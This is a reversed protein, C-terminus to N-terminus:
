EVSITVQPDDVALLLQDDVRGALVHRRGINLLVQLRGAGQDPLRDHDAVAPGVVDRQDHQVRVRAGRERCPVPQGVPRDRRDCSLGGREVLYRGADLTGVRMQAADLLDLAERHQVTVPRGAAVLQGRRHLQPALRDGFLVRGLDLVEVPLARERGRLDDTGSVAAGHVAVHGAFRRDTEASRLVAPFGIGPRLRLRTGSISQRAVHRQAEIKSKEKEGRPPFLANAAARLRSVLWQSAFNSLYPLSMSLGSSGSRTSIKSVVSRSPSCDGPIESLVCSFSSIAVCSARSPTSTISAPNGIVEGPSKSATCVIARVSKPSSTGGTMAPRARVWTASM